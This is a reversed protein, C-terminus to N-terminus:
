VTMKQGGVSLLPDSESSAVTGGWPTILTELDRFLRSVEKSQEKSKSNVEKVSMRRHLNSTKKIALIVKLNLSILITFPVIYMVFTYAWGIYYTIYAASKRFDRADPETIIVGLALTCNVDHTKVEFARTLNFLIAFGVVSAILIRTNLKTCIRHASFPFCVGVFRHASM